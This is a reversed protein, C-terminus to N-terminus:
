VLVLPVISHERRRWDIQVRQMRSIGCPSPCRGFFIRSSSILIKKPSTLWMISTKRTRFRDRRDCPGECFLGHMSSGMNEVRVSDRSRDAVLFIEESATPWASCCGHDAWVAFNLRALSLHFLRSLEARLPEVEVM